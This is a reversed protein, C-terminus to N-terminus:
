TDLDHKTLEYNLDPAERPTLNIKGGLGVFRRKWFKHSTHEVAAKGAYMGLGLGALIEFTQTGLVAAAGPGGVLWGALAGSTAGITVGTMVMTKKWMVDRLVSSQKKFEAAMQLLEESKEDMEEAMYINEQMKSINEAMKEKAKMFEDNVVAFPSHLYQETFDLLLAALSKKYFDEKEIRKRRLDENKAEDHYQEFLDGLAEVCESALMHPYRESSVVINLSNERTRTVCWQHKTIPHQFMTCSGEDEVNLNDFLQDLILDLDTKWEDVVGEVTRELVFEKSENVVGLFLIQELDSETDFAHIHWSASESDENKFAVTKLTKNYHLHLGNFSKFSFTGVTPNYEVDFVTNEEITESYWAQASKSPLLTGCKIYKGAEDQIVVREWTLLLKIYEVRSSIISSREMVEDQSNLPLIRFPSPKGVKKLTPIGNSRIIFGGDTCSILYKM